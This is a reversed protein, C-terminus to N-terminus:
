GGARKSGRFRYFFGHQGVPTCPICIIVYVNNFFYTFREYSHSSLLELTIEEIGSLAPISTNGKPSGDLNCWDFPTDESLKYTIVKNTKPEVFDRWDDSLEPYVEKTDEQPVYSDAWEKSVFNWCYVCRGEGSLAEDRYNGIMLQNETLVLIQFGNRFDVANNNAWEGHIFDVNVASITHDSTNM